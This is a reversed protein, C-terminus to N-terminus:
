AGKEAPHPEPSASPPAISNASEATPPAPAEGKIAASMDDQMLKAPDFSTDVQAQDKIANLEKKVDELDAEKMADMFQNQFENAMRRMKGVAQGVTRMVRPLDKPGIVVLAVVGVLLLKGIDFDFMPEPIRNELIYPAAREDNRAFRLLESELNAAAAL